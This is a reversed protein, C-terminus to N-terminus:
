ATGSRDQPVAQSKSLREIGKGLEIIAASVLELHSRSCNSMKGAFERSINAAREKLAALARETLPELAGQLRAQAEAEQQEASAQVSNLAAKAAANTARKLEDCASDLRERLISEFTKDLQTCSEEIQVASKELYQQCTREMEEERKTLDAIVNRAHDIVPATQEKLRAIIRDVTDTRSAELFRQLQAQAKTTLMESVEELERHRMEMRTIAQQLDAEIQKEWQAHRIRASEEGVLNMKKLSEDVWSGTQSSIAEAVVHKAEEQLGAHMDNLLAAARERVVAEAAESLM